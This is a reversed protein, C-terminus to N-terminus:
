ERHPETHNHFGGEVGPGAVSARAMVARRLDLPWDDSLELFEALKSWGIRSMAAEAMTRFHPDSWASLIQAWGGLLREKPVAAQSFMIGRQRPKVRESILQNAEPAVPNVAETRQRRLEALQDQRVKEAAEKARIEVLEARRIAAEREERLRNEKERREARLRSEEERIEKVVSISDLVALGKRSLQVFRFEELDLFERQLANRVAVRMKKGELVLWQQDRFVLVRGFVQPAVVSRSVDRARMFDNLLRVRLEAQAFDKENM